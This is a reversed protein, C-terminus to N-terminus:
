GEPIAQSLDRFVSAKLTTGDVKLLLPNISETVFVNGKSDIALDNLTPKTVNVISKLDIKVLLTNTKLQYGYLSDIGSIWLRDNKEDIKVGLAEKRGDTGAAQFVKAQGNVVVQISGDSNSSVYIAGTRGDRTLSEPFLANGLLPIQKPSGGAASALSTFLLSTAFLKINM